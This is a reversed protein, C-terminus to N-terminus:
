SSLDTFRLPAFVCLSGISRIKADKHRQPSNKGEGDAAGNRRTMKTAAEGRQTRQARQPPGKKTGSSMPDM